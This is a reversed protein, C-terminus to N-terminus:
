DLASITINGGSTRAKIMNGGGNIKGYMDGNKIKGSFQLDCDCDGGSTSADVEAAISRPLRIRVNGGSTEAYIGKNSTASIEINGGSTETRLKADVNKFKINGGSTEAYLDGSVSEGYIEGGSTTLSLEGQCNKIDVDGGSTEMKVTGILSGIDLNGGSTTGTVKGELSNVVLDGGATQLDLNFKKPVRIEYRVSLSGNEFFRFHNRNERAEIHVTNGTQEFSVHYKDLREKDGSMTVVISVESVDTGTVTVDGEDADIVLDGDPQVSFKKEINQDGKGWFNNSEVGRSDARRISLGVMAAGFVLALVVLILIKATLSLSKNM